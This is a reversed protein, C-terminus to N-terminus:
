RGNRLDCGGQRRDSALMGRRRGLPPSRHAVHSGAPELWPRVPGLQGWAGTDLVLVTGPEPLETSREDYVEIGDAGPLQALTAPLPPVILGRAERGLVAFTERMAIMSGLADGDPKAHTLIVIPEAAQRILEVAQALDINAQYDSM